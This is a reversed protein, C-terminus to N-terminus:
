VINAKREMKKELDKMREWELIKRQDAYTTVVNPKKVFGKSLLKTEARTENLKNKLSQISSNKALMEKKITDRLDGASM